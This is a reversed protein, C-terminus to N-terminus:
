SKAFRELEGASRRRILWRSIVRSGSGSHSTAARVAARHAIEFAAGLSCPRAHARTPCRSTNARSARSWGVARARSRALRPGDTRRSRWAFPASAGNKGWDATLASIESCRPIDCSPTTRGNEEALRGGLLERTRANQGPRAQRPRRGARCDFFRRSRPDRARSALYSQGLKAM